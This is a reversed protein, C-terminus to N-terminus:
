CGLWFQIFLSAARLHPDNKNVLGELVKASDRKMLVVRFVLTELYM